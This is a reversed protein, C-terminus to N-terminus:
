GRNEPYCGYAPRDATSSFYGCLNGTPPADPEVAVLHAFAGSYCQSMLMVVRVGPRLMRLLERLESVSLSENPGWLTISNNLSDEANKQGHDTVYLLLTDRRGLARHARKFWRRLNEKTAAQLEVGPVSSNAYTIPTALQHELRTGRLLWVEAEPQAERVALDEAPDAGDGSFVSVQDPRIGAHRLVDLLQQVHLLHSQYNMAKSGGGNVMLVHVRDVADGVRPLAPKAAPLPQRRCGAAVLACVGLVVLAHAARRLRRSTVMGRLKAPGRRCRFNARAVPPRCRSSGDQGVPNPPMQPACRAFRALVARAGLYVPPRCRSSGDQGVPNPPMPPACRAFRALVARAGLYVPPRCRSSGDQGVPNPPM